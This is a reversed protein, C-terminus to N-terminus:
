RSRRSRHTGRSYSSNSGSESSGTGLTTPVLTLLATTPPEFVEETRSCSVITALASLLEHPVRYAQCTRLQCCQKTACAWTPCESPRSLADAGHNNKGAIHRSSLKMPVSCGLTLAMAFRSLDRVAPRHSRAAYRLWSLASTNDALLSIVYDGPIPGRQQALMVVFWLNIIIAVLELINIHLGEATGDPECTDENIAKMDFGVAVLDERFLRWKYSFEESWGGLGDYSADSPATHTPERHVLLGIPRRWVPHASNDDLTSRLLRLDRATAPLLRIGTHRYWRKWYRPHPNGRRLWVAQIAENLAYQVRLSFYVGLPAVPAANRILGLLSSCERPMLSCPSRQLFADLLQALQQRKEVPWSMTMSRTCIFFGLYVMAYSAIEIWKEESLCPFRRDGSPHGFIAYAARVSNDIAGIIRARVDAIGNDDVFTSNHYRASLEESIGQHQADAVAQVLNSRERVTLDPVLRVRRALTTLSDPDDDTRYISNSAVHSRVESLLTFFSPSNRAGFITGIPFLLFECFVAAFVVMADPHYLIRHFAAQIDDVFQLIDEHPHTIRLNWVQTLHRHLATSYYIAPCEDERGPTGPSPISLNAAGDDDEGILSSPDVCLRGKGKRIAWVLPAIHVGVLFRWLFRPLALHYSQAEEKAIKARVEDWAQELGPHNDYQNRRRVSEFSCEYDGALPAGETCVRFARDFDITPYGDPVPISHVANLADSVEAWDRHANTYEGELWRILDGFNFDFRALAM